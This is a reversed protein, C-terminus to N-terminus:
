QKVVGPQFSVTMNSPDYSGALYYCGPQQQQQQQQQQQRRRKTFEKLPLVHCVQSITQVDNEDTHPSQFLGGQASLSLSVTLCVSLVTCNAFYPPTPPEIQLIFQHQGM